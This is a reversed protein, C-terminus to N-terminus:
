ALCRGWILSSKLMPNLEFKRTSHVGPNLSPRHKPLGWAAQAFLFGQARACLNTHNTTCGFFRGLLAVIGALAMVRAGLKLFGLMQESGEPLSGGEYQPRMIAFFKGSTVWLVTCFFFAAGGFIYM